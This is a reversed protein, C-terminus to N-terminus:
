AQTMEKRNFIQRLIEEGAEYPSKKYAWRDSRIGSIDKEGARQSGLSDAILTWRIEDKM